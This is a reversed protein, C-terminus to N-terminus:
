GCADIVFVPVWQTIIALSFLLGALVGFLGVFARWGNAGEVNRDFAVPNAALLGASVAIAALALLLSGFGAAHLAIEGGMVCVPQVLFYTLNLHIAWAVASGLLAFGVTLITRTSMPDNTALQDGDTM